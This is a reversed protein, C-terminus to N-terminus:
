GAALPHTSPSTPRPIRRTPITPTTIPVTIIAQTIRQTAGLEGIRTHTATTATVAAIDMVAVTDMAEATGTAAMATAVAIDEVAIYRVAPIAEVVATDVPFDVARAAATPVLAAVAEVM